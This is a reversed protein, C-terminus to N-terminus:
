TLLEPKRLREGIVAIAVAAVASWRFARGIVADDLHVLEESEPTAQKADPELSSQNSM